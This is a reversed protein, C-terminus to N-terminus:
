NVTAPWLSALPGSFGPLVRPSPLADSDLSTVREYWPLQWGVNLRGTRPRLDPQRREVTKGRVLAVPRDIPMRAFEEATILGAPVATSM